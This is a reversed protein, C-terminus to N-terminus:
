ADHDPLGNILPLITYKEFRSSDIFINDIASSSNNQTRTPFTVTSVLNYSMLLADLQCRRSSIKLYNINIDGCIIVDIKPDYMKQLIKELQTLLNNYKGDSVRNGGLNPMVSYIFNMILNMVVWGQFTGSSVSYVVFSDVTAKHLPIFNISIIKNCSIPSNLFSRFYKFSSREGIIQMKNITLMENETEPIAHSSFNSATSVSVSGILPTLTRFVSTQTSITTAGNM